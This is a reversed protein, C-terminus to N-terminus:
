QEAQVTEVGAAAAVLDVIRRRRSIASTYDPNPTPCCSMLVEVKRPVPIPFCDVTLM